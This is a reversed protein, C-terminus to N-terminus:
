GFITDIAGDVIRRGLTWGVGHATSDEVKRRLDSARKQWGEGQSERRRLLLELEGADLWVGHEECYDVVISDPVTRHRMEKACKPCDM